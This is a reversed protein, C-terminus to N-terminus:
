VTSRPSQVIRIIFDCRPKLKSSNSTAEEMPKVTMITIVLRNLVPMSAVMRTVCRASVCCFIRAAMSSIVLSKLM